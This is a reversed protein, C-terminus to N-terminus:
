TIAKIAWMVAQELNTKALAIMRPEANIAWDISDYLKEADNKIQNIRNKTEDNIPRCEKRFTDAERTMIIGIEQLIICIFGYFGGTDITVKNYCPFNPFNLIIKVKSAEKEM